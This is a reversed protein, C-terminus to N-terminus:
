VSFYSGYRESIEVVIFNQDRVINEVVLYIWFVIGGQRRYLVFSFVDPCFYVFSFFSKVLGFWWRFCDFGLSIAMGPSFELYFDVWM